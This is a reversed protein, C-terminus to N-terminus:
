ASKWERHMEEVYLKRYEDPHSQRLRHLARSQVRSQRNISARTEASDRRLERHYTTAAVRCPACPQESRRRHRQYAAYTGCPAWKKLRVKM